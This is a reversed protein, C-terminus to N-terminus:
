GAAAGFADLALSCALGSAAVFTALMIGLFRFPKNEIPLLRAVRPWSRAFVRSGVALKMVLIIFLPFGSILVAYVYVGALGQFTLAYRITEPVVTVATRVDGGFSGQIRAFAVYVAATLVSFVALKFLIDFAIFAALQWPGSRAIEHRFYATVALSAYTALFVVLLGTFIFQNILLARALGDDWLQVAFAYNNMLYFAFVVALSVVTHSLAELALSLLGVERGVMSSLLDAAAQQTAHPDPARREIDAALTKALTDLIREDWRWLLSALLMFIITAGAVQAGLAIALEGDV